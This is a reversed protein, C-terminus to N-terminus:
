AACQREFLGCAFEYLKADLSIHRAIAPHDPALPADREVPMLEPREHVVNDLVNLREYGADPPVSGIAAFIRPLAEDFREMLGIAVCECLARKAEDLAAGPDEDMSTSALARVMTNNITAERQVFDHFLFDKMSHSHALGTMGSANSVDRHAKLYYYMSNLRACPERLMTVISKEGPLMRVSPMDFHGHFFRYSAMLGIPWMRLDNYQPPCIDETSFLRALLNALTTGGCKPLHIFVLKPGKSSYSLPLKASVVRLYTPTFEECKLLDNRLTWINEARGHLEIVAEDEPDRGLIYRYGWIVEDRTVPM